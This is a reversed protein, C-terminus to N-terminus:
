AHAARAAPQPQYQLSGRMVVAGQGSLVVRHIEGGICRVHLDARTPRGLAHGQETVVHVNEGCSQLGHGVAYAAVAALCTGSAIDECRRRDGPHLFRCHYDATSDQTQPCFLVMGSAGREDLLAQVRERPMLTGRMLDHDSVPVVLHDFGCSVRQPGAEGLRVAEATTEFARAVEDAAIPEGFRPTPMDADVQVPGGPEATLTVELVGALTEVHLLRGEPRARFIGRDALSTFAALLVHGSLNGENRDSFFRLRVDAARDDPPLVFGVEMGLEAAIDRMEGDSLHTANPIIAAPNGAFPKSAFADVIHLPIVAM